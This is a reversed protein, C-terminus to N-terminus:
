ANTPSPSEEDAPGGNEDKAEVDTPVWEYEDLDAGPPLPPLEAQVPAPLAAADIVMDDKPHDHNCVVFSVVPQRQNVEGPKARLGLLEAEDQLCNRIVELFRPNGPQSTKGTSIRKSKEWSAFAERKLNELEALVRGREADYDCLASRKWQERIARLDQSVKVRACASGNGVRSAIESPRLGQLLLAAVRARREEVQM